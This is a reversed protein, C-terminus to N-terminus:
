LIFAVLALQIFVKNTVATTLGSSRITFMEILVFLRYAMTVYRNM